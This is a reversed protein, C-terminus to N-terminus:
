KVYYLVRRDSDSVVYPHGNYYFYSYGNYDPIPQLRVTSPVEYGVGVDGQIEVPDVRNQEVYTVMRKPYTAPAYVISRDSSKVIIPRNDNAYFYAYDPDSPVETLHVSEPVIYGKTIEGKVAVPRTPNAIVYQRVPEPASASNGIAAGIVGGIVAGVPGGVIAGGIAGTATGAVTGGAQEAQQQQTQAAAPGCVLAIAAAAILYKRM